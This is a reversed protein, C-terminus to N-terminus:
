ELTTQMTVRKADKPVVGFITKAIGPSVAVRADQIEKMDKLINVSQLLTRGMINSIASSKDFAPITESVLSVKLQYTEKDRELSQVTLQTKEQRLVVGDLLLDQLQRQAIPLLDATTYSVGKASLTMSVNVLKAEDGAKASFQQSKIEFEDAPIIHIDGIEGQVLADKAKKKLDETLLSSLSDIDAKSVAQIERSTGGAFADANSAVYTKKDFNAVSFETKAPLNYDAGIKAATVTVDAQGLQSNLASSGSSSAIIVEGDLTFKFGNAATLTTGAPFKKESGTANYITVKGKAKDGVINTGTTAGEMAGSVEKQIVTAKVVNAEPNSQAATPDLTIDIDKSIPSTNLVVTFAATMTRSLAFAGGGVGLLLVVLVIGIMLGTQGGSLSPLQISIKPLSIKPLRVASLITSFSPLTFARKPTQSLPQPEVHEQEMGSINSTDEETVYGRIKIEERPPEQEAGTASGVDHFGFEEASSMTIPSKQPPVVVDPVVEEVVMRKGRKAPLPEEEHVNGVAVGSQVLSEAEGRQIYGLSVAVETGGSVCVARIVTHPPLVDIKPVHLFKVTKQWEQTLLTQKERELEEAKMRVSYVIMRSPLTTGSFRTLGEIVDAVSSGSRGVQETRIVKGAKVLTVIIHESTYQLLISSIPGGEEAQLYHLLAETTVVFGLPHLELQEKLLKLVPKRDVVITQGRVWSEQLGFVIDHVNDADQGLEGLAVDAAEAADTPSTDKWEIPSSTKLFEVTNNEIKWLGATITEEGIDLSLFVRQDTTKKAGPFLHPLGM